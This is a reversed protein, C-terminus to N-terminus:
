NQGDLDSWDLIEGDKRILFGIFEGDSSTPYMPAPEEFYYCLVVEGGVQGALEYVEDEESEIWCEKWDENTTFVEHEMAGWTM